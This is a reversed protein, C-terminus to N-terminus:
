LQSNNPVFLATLHRAREITVHLMSDVKMYRLSIQVQASEINAAHSSSHRVAEFVGSDGAVSENSVAASVSRTNSSSSSHSLTATFPHVLNFFRVIKVFRLLINVQHYIYSPHSKM